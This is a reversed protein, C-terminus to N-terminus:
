PRAATMLRVTASRLIRRGEHEGGSILTQAYVALDDATSFLGAHGAVGSLLYARPDHVEGAMWHGERRETPAAREKLRDAPRFSTNAMDLPAFVHEHAF